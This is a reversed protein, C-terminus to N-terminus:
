CCACAASKTVKMYAVPVTIVNDLAQDLLCERYMQPTTAAHIILKIYDFRRMENQFGDAGDTAPGKKSKRGASFIKPLASLPRADGSDSSGGMQSTHLPRWDELANNHMNHMHDSEDSRVTQSDEGSGIAPDLNPGFDGASGIM